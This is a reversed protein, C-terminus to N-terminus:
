MQTRQKNKGSVRGKRVQKGVFQFLTIFGWFIFTYTIFLSIYYAAVNPNHPNENIWTGIVSAIIFAPVQILDFVFLLIHLGTPTWYLYKNRWYTVLMLM